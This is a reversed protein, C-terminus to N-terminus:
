RNSRMSYLRSATRRWSRRSTTAYTRTRRPSSTPSATSPTGLPLTPPSYASLLPSLPSLPSLSYSLCSLLHMFHTDTHTPHRARRTCALVIYEGEVSYGGVRQGVFVCRTARLMSCVVFPCACTCTYTCTCARTERFRGTPKETGTKESRKEDSKTTRACTSLSARSPSTNRSRTWCASSRAPPPCPQEKHTPTDPPGDNLHLPSTPSLPLRALVTNCPLFFVPLSSLINIHGTDSPSPSLPPRLLHAAPPSDPYYRPLPKISARRCPLTHIPVVSVASFSRLNSWRLRVYSNRRGPPPPITSQEINQVV